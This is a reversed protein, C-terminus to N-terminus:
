VLSQSYCFHMLIVQTPSIFHLGRKMNEHIIIKKNDVEL